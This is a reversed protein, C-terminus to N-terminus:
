PTSEPSACAAGPIPNVGVAASAEKFILGGATNSIGHFGRKPGDHPTRM